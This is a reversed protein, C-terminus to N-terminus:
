IHVSAMSVCRSLSAAHAHDDSILRFISGHVGRWGVEGGGGMGDWEFVCVCVCLANM